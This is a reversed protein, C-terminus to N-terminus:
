VGIDEVVADFVELAPKGQLEPNARLAQCHAGIAIQRCFCLVEYFWNIGHKIYKGLLGQQCRGLTLTGKDAM